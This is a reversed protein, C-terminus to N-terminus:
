RERRAEIARKVLKVVDDLGFPKLLFDRVGCKAFEAQTDEGAYGTAVIIPLSPDLAKIRKSTELGDMVPMKYDTIVLDFRRRQMAEIAAAGNAVTTVDFGADAFELALLDRLDEEDDAFLV